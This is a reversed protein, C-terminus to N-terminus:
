GRSSVGKISSSCVSPDFLGLTFIRTIPATLAISRLAALYDPLTAAALVSQDRSGHGPLAPAHCRYGAAAFREQWGALHAPNSFAGHIFLASPM